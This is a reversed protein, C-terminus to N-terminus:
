HSSARASKISNERAKQSQNRGVRRHTMSPPSISCRPIRGIILTGANPSTIVAVYMVNRAGSSIWYRMRRSSGRAAIRAQGREDRWIGQPRGPALDRERPQILSLKRELNGFGARGRIREREPSVRGSAIRELSGTYQIAQIAGAM